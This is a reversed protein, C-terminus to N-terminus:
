KLFQHPTLSRLHRALLTRSSITWHLTRWARLHVWDARETSGGLDHVVPDSPTECTAGYVIRLAHFNELVGTTSRGIWHDSELALVKAIRINQGAEEFVERLVANSPSEGEEIGGGPLAWTGPAGTLSSNVTGLLGRQSVVVAYAGVRQHEVPPQSADPEEHVVHRRRPRRDGSNVERVLYTFVIEEAVLTASLPRIPVFGHTFLAEAPHEGHAITVDVSQSGVPSLVGVVRM